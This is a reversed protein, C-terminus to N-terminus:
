FLPGTERPSARGVCLALRGSRSRKRSPCSRLDVRRSSNPTACFNMSCRTCSRSTSRSTRLDSEKTAAAAAHSTTQFRQSTILFNMWLIVPFTNGLRSKSTAFPVFTSPTENRRERHRWQFHQRRRRRHLRKVNKKSSITTEWWRTWNTTSWDWIGLIM